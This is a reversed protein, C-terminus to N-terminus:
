LNKNVKMIFFNICINKKRKCFSHTYIHSFIPCVQHHSISNNNSKNKWANLIYIHSNLAESKKTPFLIIYFFLVYQSYFLESTSAPRWHFRLTRACLAKMVAASCQQTYYFVLWPLYNIYKETLVNCTFISGFHLAFFFFSFNRKKENLEIELQACYKKRRQSLDPRRQYKEERKMMCKVSNKTLTAWM